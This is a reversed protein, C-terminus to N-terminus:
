RAHRKIFNLIEIHKDTDIEMLKVLLHWLTTDKQDKLEKELQKLQHSDSREQELLKETLQAVQQPHAGWRTLRPIAPEEPRLEADTRISSALEEFWRHHRVEDEVILGVLYLFASSASDVSASQYEELIKQENEAHSTLHEYMEGEWVSAGILKEAM